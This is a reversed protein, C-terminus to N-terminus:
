RGERTVAAEVAVGPGPFAVHGRIRRALPSPHPHYWAGNVLTRGGVSVTHYRAVGKRFCLSRARSDTFWEGYLLEPPFHHNGEVVTREAEAPVTGNWVACM